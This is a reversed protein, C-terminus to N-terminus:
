PLGLDKTIWADIRDAAERWRPEIMINHATAPLLDYRANLAKALSEQEEVSFCVDNEGAIVFTPSAIAEPKSKLWLSLQTAVLMSEPVLKGYFEQIDIQTDVSLFMDRAMAPGAMVSKITAFMRASAWFHRRFMRGMFPLIGVQPISAILVGAPLHNSELYKLTLFGGLSHGVLVPRPSVKDIEMGLCDLYDKVGYKNINGKNLSSKGHGPLSIAHVEYGLSAFYDIFNKWCFAGHWAGHQLFIPTEHKREGPVVVIHELRESM